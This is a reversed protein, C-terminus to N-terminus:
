AGGGDGGRVRRRGRAPDGLLGAQPRDGRKKLRGDCRRTVSRRRSRWNWSGSWWFGCRGTRSGMRRGWVYPSSRRRRSGTSPRPGPGAQAMYVANGRVALGTPVINGFTVLETIRGDLTVGLVRNHHGDTVLLGGRYPQLSFQLGTPIFFPTGPPNDLAFEGIDAVVTFRDPGDVRYVGVVDDGGLNPGVLTVLVYATDDLFAVDIAGSIGLIATPLGSAFTTVGGTKPDVFSVRFLSGSTLTITQDNLSSDFVVVDGALAHVVADRLSGAGKDISNLVTLTSPVTRDELLEIGPVFSGSMRPGNRGGEPRGGPGRVLSRILTTFRM